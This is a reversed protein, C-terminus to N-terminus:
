VISAARARGRRAAEDYAAETHLPSAARQSRRYEFTVNM